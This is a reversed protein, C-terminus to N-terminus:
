SLVCLLLFLFLGGPELLVLDMEVRPTWYIWDGVMRAVDQVEVIV